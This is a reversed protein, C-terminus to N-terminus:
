AQSALRMHHRIYQEHDTVYLDRIWSDRVHHLAGVSGRRSTTLPAASPARTSARAPLGGGSNPHPAATAPSSGGSDTTAGASASGGLALAALIAGGVALQKLRQKMM